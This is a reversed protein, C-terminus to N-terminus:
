APLLARRRARRRAPPSYHATAPAFSRQRAGHRAAIYAAGLAYAAGARKGRRWRQSGLQARPMRRPVAAIYPPLFM